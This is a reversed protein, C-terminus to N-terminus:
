GKFPEVLNPTQISVTRQGPTVAQAAPRFGGAGTTQKPLGNVTGASTSSPTQFTPDFPQVASQPVLTAFADGAGVVRGQTSLGTRGLSFEGPLNQSKAQMGSYRPDSLSPVPSQMPTVAFTQQATDLIASATFEISFEIGGHMHEDDYSYTFSEMHGYYVWGDYHISLAGVLLNAYSKGVTDYVYGNNQYFHFANMLNQWALSDRKSAIQVGRGGSVFAGCRATISLKPQEEGWAQFIYGHRSREQFQQVKNRAISLTTPNILLVLPPTNVAASLQQAIDVATYLDAIAPQGLNGETNGQSDARQGTPTTNKQPGSGNQVIFEQPSGVRYSLGSFGSQFIARRARDYGTLGPGSTASFDTAVVGTRQNQFGGQEGYVLPPEIRITFPSLSRLLPNSMEVQLAQNAEYEITLNPGVRLGALDVPAPPNSVSQALRQAERAAQVQNFEAPPRPTNTM